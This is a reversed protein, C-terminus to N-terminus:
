RGGKAAALATKAVLAAEQCKDCCTNAAISELAERYRLNAKMFQRMAEKWPPEATVEAPAAPPATLLELARAHSMVGSRYDLLICEVRLLEKTAADSTM